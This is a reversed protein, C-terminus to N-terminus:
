GKRPRGRKLTPLWAAIDAWRWVPGTSLRVVPEPFDGHRRRWSHVTAVAVGARTAIEQVGVLQDGADGPWGSLHKVLAELAETRTDWGRGRKDIADAEGDVIYWRAALDDSGSLQNGRQVEFRTM